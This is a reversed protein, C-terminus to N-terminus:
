TCRPARCARYRRACCLPSCSTERRGSSRSPRTRPRRRAGARAPAPTSTRPRPSTRESPPFSIMSFKESSNIRIKGRRMTPQPMSDSANLRFLLDTPQHMSITGGRDPNVRYPLVRAKHQRLDAFGVSSVDACQQGLVPQVDALLHHQQFEPLLVAQAAPLEGDAEADLGRGDGLHQPPQLSAVEHLTALVRCVGTAEADLERLLSSRELLRHGATPRPGLLRRERPQADAFLLCKPLQQDPYPTVEVSSEARLLLDKSVMYKPSSSIPMRLCVRSPRLYLRCTAPPSSSGRLAGAPPAQRPQPKLASLAAVSRALTEVRSRIPTITEATKTETSFLEM